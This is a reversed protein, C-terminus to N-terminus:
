EYQFLAKMEDISMAKIIQQGDEVVNKFLDLKSQQLAVIKEEVTGKTILRIVQVKKTQGIRHTRDIAQNEIMPNWWPDFLIVTDASTLNLGIGGTKLSILFLRLKNDQNFRQVETIRNKTQGDLYAYPIGENDFTQRIIKLMQVFQSFVLIKHGNQIAELVLDQLQELKTSVSPESKIDPSILSPHNCIQRLKTLASLIHIYNPNDQSPKFLQKRVQEIIQLYLKEQVPGLKCWSIQEQKDPLELLVEKKTRRLLFPSIYRHLRLSSDEQDSAYDKKFRGLSGLYGPMLFDMISWIETVRNEIPTGSLALKHKAHLKKIATRRQTTVNKISQAEDLIIWNFDIKCFEDIDNTAISYSVILLRTNPNNILIKRTAKDGEIVSYPINTHFKEIEAAWNYLLTKPCIVLSVGDAPTEAIISLAQLTKGLGMEDALVGNLHYHELMKLWTYGAKQYSRMVTQLYHPLTETKDMKRALLDGFMKNIHDDGVIRFAPNTQRLQMYYPLNLVRAKYVSDVLHESKALLKETEYFVERNTIFVIRGDQTHLFQQESNFYRRLEEHSFSFDKYRYRVDYSFWDIEDSSRASIEIQLPIRYIFDNRLEPSIEIEWSNESLAYVAKKLAEINNEGLFILQSHEELRKM